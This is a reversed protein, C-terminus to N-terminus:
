GGWSVTAQFTQCYQHLPCTSYSLHNAPVLSGALQHCPLVLSGAAGPHSESLDQAIVIEWRPPNNWVHLARGGCCCLIFQHTSPAPYLPIFLVSLLCAVAPSCLPHVSPPLPLRTRLSDCRSYPLPQLLENSVM